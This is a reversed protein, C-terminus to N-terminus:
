WKDIIFIITLIIAYYKWWFCSKMQKASAEMYKIMMARM